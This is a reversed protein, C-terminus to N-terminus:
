VFRQQVARLDDKVRENAEIKKKLEVLANCIPSLRRREGLREWSFIDMWSLLEAMQRELMQALAQITAEIDDVRSDDGKVEPLQVVTNACTRALEVAHEFSLLLYSHLREAAATTYHLQNLYKLGYLLVFLPIAILGVLVGDNGCFDSPLYITNTGTDLTLWTTTHGNIVLVPSM